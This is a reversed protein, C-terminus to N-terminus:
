KEQLEKLKLLEEQLSCIHSHYVAFLIQNVLIMIIIGLYINLYILFVQLIICILVEIFSNRKMKIIKNM